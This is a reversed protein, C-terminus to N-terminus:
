IKIKVDQSDNLWTGVIEDAGSQAYSFGSMVVLSILLLISHRMAYM